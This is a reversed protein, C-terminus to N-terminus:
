LHPKTSRSLPSDEQRKEEELKHMTEEEAKAKHMDLSKYEAEKELFDIEVELCAAKAVAKVRKSRVSGRTGSSKHRNRKLNSHM